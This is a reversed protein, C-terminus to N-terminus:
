LAAAHLKAALQGRRQVQMKELISHVHNKVTSLEIHLEVAIEKNSLGRRILVAIQRQRPTLVDGQAVELSSALRGVRRFLRQTMAPSCRLEGRVVDRLARVLDTLSADRPIFGAAGAEACAVVEQEAEPVALALIRTRPVSESVATMTCLGEHMQMDLLLVDPRLESVRAVAAPGSAVAGVISLDDYRSLTESL